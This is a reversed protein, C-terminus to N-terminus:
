THFLDMMVNKLEDICLFNISVPDTSSATLLEEDQSIRQLLNYTFEKGKPKDNPRLRQLMQVKYAYLRLRKYLVKLVTTLTIGIRQCSYPHVENATIPVTASSKRYRYRCRRQKKEDGAVLPLAATKKVSFAAASWRQNKLLYKAAAAVGSLSRGLSKKIWM